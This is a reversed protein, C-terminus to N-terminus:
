LCNEKILLSLHHQKSNIERIFNIILLHDKFHHHDVMDKDELLSRHFTLIIGGDRIAHKVLHTTTPIPSTFTYLINAQEAKIISLRLCQEVLYDQSDCLVCVPFVVAKSPKPTLSQARKNMKLAELRRMVSTM